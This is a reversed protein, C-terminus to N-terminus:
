ESFLEGPPRKGKGKLRRSLQKISNVDSSALKTGMSLVSYFFM